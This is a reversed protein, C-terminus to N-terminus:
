LPLDMHAPDPVYCYDPPAPAEAMITRALSAVQSHRGLGAAGGVFLHADMTGLALWTRMVDATERQFVRTTLDAVWDQRSNGAARTAPVGGAGRWQLPRAAGGGAVDLARYPGLLATRTEEPLRDWEAHRYLDDISSLARTRGAAQSASAGSPSRQGWMASEWQE